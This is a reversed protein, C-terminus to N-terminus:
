LKYQCKKFAKKIADEIKYDYLKEKSGDRKLIYQM